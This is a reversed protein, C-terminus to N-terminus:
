LAHGLVVVADRGEVRDEEDLFDRGLFPRVGAVRFYNASAVQGWVREPQGNGGINAPVLPFFATVGEFVKGTTQASIDQYNPWSISRGDNLTYLRNPEKVPISAYIMSNVISYVTSNAAIGLAISIIVVATFGPSKSFSRAAYVLDQIVTRM